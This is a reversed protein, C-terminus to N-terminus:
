LKPAVGVTYSLCTRRRRATRASSTTTERIRSV